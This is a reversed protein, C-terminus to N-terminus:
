NGRFKLITMTGWSGRRCVWAASYGHIEMKWRSLINLIQTGADQMFGYMIVDCDSAIEWGCCSFTYASNRIVSRLLHYATSSSIKIKANLIFADRMFEKGKVRKLVATCYRNQEYYTHELAHCPTQNYFIIRLTFSDTINNLQLHLSVPAFLYKKLRNQQSIGPNM